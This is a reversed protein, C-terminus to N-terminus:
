SAAEPGEAGSAPKAKPKSPKASAGTAPKQKALKAPDIKTGRKYADSNHDDKTFDSMWAYVIDPAADVHAECRWELSGM